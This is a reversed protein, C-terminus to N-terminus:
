RDKKVFLGIIAGFILGSLPGFVMQGIGGIMPDVFYSSWKWATDMAEENMGSQEWAQYMGNKLDTVYDPNILTGFIWLYLGTVIGSGLGITAGIGVCQDMSLYGKQLHDRHNVMVMRYIVIALVFSALGMVIKPMTGSNPNQLDIGMLYAGLQLVANAAGLILGYQLATKFYPYKHPVGRNEQDLITEM